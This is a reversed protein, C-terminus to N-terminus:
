INFGFEGDPSTQNIEASERIRVTVLNHLGGVANLNQEIWMKEAFDYRKNNYIWYGGVDLTIGAAELRPKSFMVELIEQERLGGPDVILGAKHEFKLNYVLCNSIPYQNGSPDIYIISDGALTDFIGKEFAATIRSLQYPTM